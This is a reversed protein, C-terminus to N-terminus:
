LSFLELRVVPPHQLFENTRIIVAVIFFAFMQKGFSVLGVNKKPIVAKLHLIHINLYHWM